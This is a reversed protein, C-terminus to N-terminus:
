VDENDGDRLRKGFENLNPEDAIAPQVMFEDIDAADPNAEFWERDNEQAARHARQHVRRIMRRREEWRPRARRRYAAEVEARPNVYGERELDRLRDRFHRWNANYQAYRARTMGGYGGPYFGHRQFDDAPWRPGRYVPRDDYWM